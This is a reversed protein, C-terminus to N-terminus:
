KKDSDIKNWLQTERLEQVKKYHKLYLPRIAHLPLYLTMFIAKAAYAGISRVNHYKFTEITREQYKEFKLVSDEIRRASMGAVMDEAYAIKLNHKALHIGLDVDEHMKNELDLCCEDKILNWAKKRVAMNTGFLIQYDSSLSSVFKRLRRDGKLSFKRFPMDYYTVPGTVAMIKKNSQFVRTVVEVWDPRLITDADIRGLVGGSAENFGANRTPTIGQYQTQTIIKVQPSLDPHTKQWEAVFSNIRKVSDDTSMNDVVIIEHPLITQTFASKLCPIIRDSENFMPIVISLKM